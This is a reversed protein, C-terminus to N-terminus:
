FFVENCTIIYNALFFYYNALYFCFVFVKQSNDRGTIEQKNAKGLCCFVALQRTQRQKRWEERRFGRHDQNAGEMRHFGSKDLDSTFKVYSYGMTLGWCSWCLWQCLWGELPVATLHSEPWWSAPGGRAQRQSNRRDGDSIGGKIWSSKM